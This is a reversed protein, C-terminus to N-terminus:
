KKYIGPVEKRMIREPKELPKFGFRAYLGHADRTALQWSRFGQLAPHGMIVEMLWKSLGRGRYNEDIFVDALYGFTAHDTIVRAFGIQTDKDYVAFCMAGDISKQVTELPINEAWYSRSLFRHIFGTDLKEKSTSISYQDKYFDMKLFKDFINMVKFCGLILGSIGKDKGCAIVPHNVPL